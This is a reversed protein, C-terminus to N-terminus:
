APRRCRSCYVNRPAFFHKLQLANDAILSSIQMVHRKTSLDVPYCVPLMSEFSVALPTAGSKSLSTTLSGALGIVLREAILAKEVIKRKHKQSYLACIAFSDFGDVTQKTMLYKIYCIM